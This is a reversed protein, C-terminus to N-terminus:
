RLYLLTSETLAKQFMKVSGMDVWRNAIVDNREKENKLLLGIESLYHEMDNNDEISERMKNVVNKLMFTKERNVDWDLDDMEDMSCVAVTSSNDVDENFVNMNPNVKVMWSYDDKYVIRSKDRRLRTIFNYSAETEYWRKIEIYAKNSRFYKKSPKLIIKGLSAIGNKHFVKTIYAPSVNMELQPIFISTIPRMKFLLSQSLAQSYPIFM